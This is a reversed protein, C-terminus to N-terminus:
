KLFNVSKAVNRVSYLDGDADCADLRGLVTQKINLVGLRAFTRNKRQYKFM